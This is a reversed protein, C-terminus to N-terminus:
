QANTCPQFKQKEISYRKMYDKKMVKKILNPNVNQIDIHSYNENFYEYIQQLMIKLKILKKVIYLYYIM